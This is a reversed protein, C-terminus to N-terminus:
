SQELRINDIYFTRKRDNGPVFLMVRKISKLDLSRATVNAKVSDLPISIQNMGKQIKFNQDFRDAYEWGNKKDDIRVHFTFPEAPNFLEMKFFRYGSWNNEIDKFYIGPYQGPPLTMQLSHIGSTSYKDSLEFWKHCEWDLYEFETESEFDFLKGSQDVRHATKFTKRFHSSIDFLDVINASSFGASIREVPLNTIAGPPNAAGGNKKAFEFFTVEPRVGLRFPLFSNGVGRSVYMLTNGKQFFGEMYDLCPDVLVAGKLYRAFFVQGGHNHGSLVFDIGNKVADEFIGPSHALLVTPLNHDVKRVDKLAGRESVTDDTDDMGILNFKQTGNKMTLSVNRLFSIRKQKKLASSKKEHCFICSGNENTYETNGLVAYANQLKDLFLLAPEYPGRFSIYDGGLFVFVPKERELISIVEKERPGFTSSHLDSVFAIKKGGLADSLRTDTIRYHRVDITYTDYYIKGILILLM